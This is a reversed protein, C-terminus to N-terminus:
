FNTDLAGATGQAGLVPLVCSPSDTYLSGRNGDGGTEASPSVSACVAAESPLSLLLSSHLQWVAESPQTGLM